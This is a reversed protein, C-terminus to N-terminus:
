RPVKFIVLQLWVFEPTQVYFRLSRVYTDSLPPPPSARTIHPQIDALWRRMDAECPADLVFELNNEAQFHSSPM